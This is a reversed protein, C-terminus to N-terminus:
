SVGAKAAGALGGLIESSARYYLVLSVAQAAILGFPISYIGSVGGLAWAAAFYSVVFVTNNAIFVRSRNSAICVQVFASELLGVLYWASLALFMTRIVSIDAPEMHASSIVKFAFPLVAYIAFTSFLFLPTMLGLFERLLAKLRAPDKGPWASSVASAYMRASPGTALNGMATVIKWAYGFQSVAGQSFGALLNNTILPALVNNINHGFKMKVSNFVFTRGAPHSTRLRVPVGCGKVAALGLLVSLGAGGVSASLLWLIDNGGSFYVLLLACSSLLSPIIGLLYPYAFRGEANLLKANLFNLPNFVALLSFVPFLRELIAARGADLKYAFLSIVPGSLVNLLLLAAAGSALILWLAYAYLAAADERSAAKLEHYAYMFQEVAMMQVMVVGGLIVDGIFYADTQGSVGFVKLLLISNILGFFIQALSLANYKLKFM